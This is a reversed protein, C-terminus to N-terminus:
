ENEFVEQCLLQIEAKATSNKMEVAGRGDRVCMRYTVRDRIVNENLTVFQYDKFFERAESVETMSPNAPAQSLVGIVELSPNIADMAQSVIEELRDLTELDLISTRLPILLKDAAAISTRLEKSDAGGADVLVIEYRNELERMAEFVNGTKQYCHIKVLNPNGGDEPPLDRTENRREAWKACSAQSGDTDVLVFDKGENALWAAINTALTTKGSGGKTGGVVVIMTNEEIQNDSVLNSDILRSKRQILYGYALDIHIQKFYVL